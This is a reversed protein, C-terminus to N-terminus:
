DFHFQIGGVVPILDRKTSIGFMYAGEAFVVISPMIEVELGGGARLMGNIGDEVNLDGDDKTHLLGGGALAYPQIRGTFPYLKINPGASVGRISGKQKTLDDTLDFRNYYQVDFEAAIWRWRYGARVDFGFTAEANRNSSNYDAFEPIAYSLGGGVYVHEIFEEEQATAEAAFSAPLFVAGLLVAARIVSVLHRRM